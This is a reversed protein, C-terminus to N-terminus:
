MLQGFGFLDLFWRIESDLRCRLCFRQLDYQEDEAPHYGRYNRRLGDGRCNHWNNCFRRRILRPPLLRKYWGSVFRFRTDGGTIERRYRAVNRTELLSWFDHFLTATDPTIGDLARLLVDFYLATVSGADMANKLLGQITPICPEPDLMFQTCRLICFMHHGHEWLRLQFDLKPHSPKLDTLLRICEGGFARSVKRDRCLAAIRKNQRQFCFLDIMSEKAVRTAIDKIMDDSLCNIYDM